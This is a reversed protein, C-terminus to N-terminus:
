TLNRRKWTASRGVGDAAIIGEKRMESLVLRITQDSIGPLAARIDAVRFIPPGRRM